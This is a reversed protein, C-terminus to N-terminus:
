ENEFLLSALQEDREYVDHYFHITGDNDAWATFYGIYIPIKNKLTYSMEKGGNMAADIKEPTWNEDDKLILNALEKPKEIRICGHSFARKEEDFLSKSPTDHLYISNSNPFLFKVLGLSNKPGPKQRLNDGDWEMDHKALYNRNKAIAPLIEKKIISKPVNWYPSFVIYKMDASFVVTKNMVKGVVVKSRLAPKDNKFYTLQYSPINIVIFEPAKFIDNSIWRCRELNVMITKIRKAIPVNMEAIHKPTILSDPSFAFRNKFKLVGAKLVTDYLNSKSDKSIDGALFLWKRIQTITRSTDGPKLSKLKPQFDITNWGGNKEIKRYNQLVEKLQYYQGLVEKEDKNILSPNVLLSDLYNVYSLKKRPLYWGIEKSKNADLGKYVKNAYFFYLSSILLETELNPKESEISLQYLEGLKQKYPVVVQVGEEQLNNIKDCLLDGVENIGKKDFWIYQFQHKRYLTEVDSEFIKLDPYKEFFPAVLTSDFPIKSYKHVDNTAVALDIITAKIKNEHKHNCSLSTLSFVFALILITIISKKM